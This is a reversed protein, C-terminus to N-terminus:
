AVPCRTRAPAPAEISQAQWLYTADSKAAVLAEGVPVLQWWMWRMMSTM